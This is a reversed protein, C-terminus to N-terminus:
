SGSFYLTGDIALPTAELSVAGPLDLSWALGLRSVNHTDIQTLPSFNNEDLTGGHSYWDTEKPPTDGSAGRANSATIILLCSLLTGILYRSMSIGGEIM